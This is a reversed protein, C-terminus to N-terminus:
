KISEFDMQMAIGTKSLNEYRSYCKIKIEKLQNLEDDSIYNSVKMLENIVKYRENKDEYNM